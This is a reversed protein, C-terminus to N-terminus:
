RALWKALRKKVQEHSTVRGSAAALMSRDIMQRVYLQYQVEELAGVWQEVAGESTATRPNHTCCSSLGRM